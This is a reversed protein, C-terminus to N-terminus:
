PTSSVASLGEACAMCLEFLHLQRRREIRDSATEAADLAGEAEDLLAQAAYLKRRWSERAAAVITESFESAVFDARAPDPEFAARLLLIAARHVFDAPDQM